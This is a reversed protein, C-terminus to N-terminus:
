PPAAQLVVRFRAGERDDRNEASMRGGYRRALGEAVFLGLGVGTVADKTTFFPDFLRQAVSDDIGPGRDVVDVVV